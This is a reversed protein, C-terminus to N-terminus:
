KQQIMSRPDNRKEKNKQLSDAEGKNSERGDKRLPKNGLPKGQKEPRNGFVLCNSIAHGVHCCHDSYDPMKAFEIRQAYSRTVTRTARDKVM